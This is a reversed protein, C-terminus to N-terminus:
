DGPDGAGCINEKVRYKVGLLMRRRYKTVGNVM